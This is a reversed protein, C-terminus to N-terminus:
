VNQSKFLFFLVIIKNIRFNIKGKGQNLINVLKLIKCNHLNIWLWHCLSQRQIQACSDAALGNGCRLSRYGRCAVLCNLSWHELRPCFACALGYPRAKKTDDRKKERRMKKEEKGRKRKEEEGRRKEDWRKTRSEQM